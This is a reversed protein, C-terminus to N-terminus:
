TFTTMYSMSYVNTFLEPEYIFRFINGIYTIIYVTNQIYICIYM